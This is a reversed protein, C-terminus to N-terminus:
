DAVILVINPRRSGGPEVGSCGVLLAGAILLVRHTVQKPVRPVGNRQASGAPVPGVGPAIRPRRIGALRDGRSSSLHLRREGGRPGNGDKMAGAFRPFRGGIEQRIEQRPSNQSLSPPDQAMLHALSFSVAATAATRLPAQIPAGASGWCVRGPDFTAGFSTGASIAGALNSASWPMILGRFPASHRHSSIGQSVLM